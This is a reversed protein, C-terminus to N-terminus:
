RDAPEKVRSKVSKAYESPSMGTSRNFVRSFYHVSSYGLSKSIETINYRDERILTKAQDIKLKNFYKMVSTGTNNKFVTQLQTQGLNFVACLQDLTLNAHLYQEMYHIIKRTTDEESREKISTSLKPKGDDSNEMRILRILLLELYIKILQECGFPANEQRYLIQAEPDDLPPRFAQFVENVFDALINRERDGLTFIKNELPKLANSKCFFSVAIVNPPHKKNVRVSHFENPKHFIIEGQRLSHTKTDATIEVEGKDVYAFEWFNHKEEHFVFGKAFEFYHILVVREIEFDINLRTPLYEM